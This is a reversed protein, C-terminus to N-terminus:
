KAKPKKGNAAPTDKAAYAPAPQKSTKGTQPANAGAKPAKRGPNKENM